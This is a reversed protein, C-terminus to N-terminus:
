RRQEAQRCRDLMLDIPQPPSPAPQTVAASKNETSAQTPDAPHAAQQAPNASRRRAAPLFALWKM